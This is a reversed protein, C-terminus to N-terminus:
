ASRLLFRQVYVTLATFDRAPLNFVFDPQVDLLAAAIYAQYTKNTEALNSLARGELVDYNRQAIRIHQGTMDKLPFKLVTHEEGGEFKYPRSLRYKGDRIVEEYTSYTDIEPAEPEHEVSPEAKGKDETRAELSHIEEYENNAM